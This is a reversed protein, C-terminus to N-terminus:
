LKIKYLVFAEPAYDTSRVWPLSTYLQWYMKMSFAANVSFEEWEIVPSFISLQAKFEQNKIHDNQFQSYVSVNPSNTYYYPLVYNEQYFDFM